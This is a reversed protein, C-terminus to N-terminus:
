DGSFICVSSHSWYFLWLLLGQTPYPSVPVRVCQPRSCSIICAALFLTVMHGPLNMGPNGGWLVPFMIECLFKYTFMRLMIWLLWFTFLGFSLYGFSLECTWWCMFSYVLHPIHMCHSTLKATLPPSTSICAGVHTVYSFMYTFCALRFASIVFSWITQSAM